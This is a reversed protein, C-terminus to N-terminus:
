AMRVSVLKSIGPEEMTIGYMVDAIEMTRKNHTILVIQSTQSMERVVENFRGINADDLPADVEDLLCFPSPKVQFVAFVLAIACMAKEGGSLLTVSGVKKGPPQVLMEVGTELLDDPCDLELRAEGGRFLRPFVVQFRANVADFTEKFLQRSTRNIQDIAKDLDELAALLDAQQTTLFEFRKEVEVCAEIAGLNIEGMREILADLETLRAREEDTPPPGDGFQELVLDLSIRHVEEVREAIHTLRLRREAVHLRADALVDRATEAAKRLQSVLLESDLVLTVTEDHAAQATGTESARASAASLAAELREKQARHEAALQGLREDATEFTSRMREVRDAAETAQTALRRARDEAAVIRERRAAFHARAEHVAVSAADRSAERARLEDDAALVAKETAGATADLAHLREDATAVLDESEGADDRLAELDDTLQTTRRGVREADAALRSDDKRTEARAIEASQLQRTQAEIRERTADIVSRAEARTLAAAQATTELEVVKLGLERIERRRSLPAADAGGQGGSVCGRSDAREGDLTVITGVFQGSTLLALAHDLREVVLVDNLLAVVPELRGRLGLLDVLLGRVGEGEPATPTPGAHLGAAVLSARGRKERRLLEVANLAADLDTVVIARLREELAAAVASELEAPPALQETLLGLVGIDRGRDLLVRPGAGLGERRAEQEELSRLRSRSGALAERATRELEDAARASAEAERRRTQEVARAETVTEIDLEADALRRSLQLRERSLTDRHAGLHSLEELFAAMRLRLDQARREAAERQVRLRIIIQAEDAASRRAVESAAKAESLLAQAESLRAELGSRDDVDLASERRLELVREDAEGTELAVEAIREAARNREAKAHDLRERTASVERQTSELRGEALRAENEANALAAAQAHAHTLAHSETLRAAAMSAEATLLSRRADAEGLTCREVRENAQEVKDYMQRYELLAVRLALARAEARYELYREAKKAQRHLTKLQVDVEGIIDALRELNTRTEDMKKEAQRKRQRYRTIGAAEEILARREEPRASVIRGIQGQEIIAYARQGGVGTGALLEQIDQLRVRVKNLYYDSGGGREMRREIAIEAVDKWRAPVEATGDNLYTLRVECIGMPGRQGTGNFIVDEMSEGRLSKAGQEGMVWRLADVINSKGCGNPGVVATVGDDFAIATRHYFSKFGHIDLRLLKM